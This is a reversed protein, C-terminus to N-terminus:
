GIRWARNCKSIPLRLLSGEGIFLAHKGDLAVIGLSPSGDVKLSIVDGRQAFYVSPLASIFDFKTAADDLSTEVTADPAGTVEALIARAEDETSYRTRYDAAIDIGTIALVSGAAFLACDFTGYDFPTNTHEVIYRELAIEWHDIRM